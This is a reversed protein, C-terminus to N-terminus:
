DFGDAFITDDIFLFLDLYRGGGTYVSTSQQSTTDYVFAGDGSTWLINGNGLVHVGRAGPAAIANVQAGTAVNFRVLNGSTFGAVIVHDGGDRALQEAFNLTTSNHFTGVSAFDLDFRHIDDNPSSSSVLFGTGTAFIGFPSPAFSAVNISGDLVGAGTIKVIAPGPAGNATGSNTLLIHGGGVGMGRVNDLGGTVGGGIAGLYTGDLSWRSVRDGLQESIWIEFGVQMAHVPTGGQLPFYDPDAVSGDALNFLVLRNNTSDPMMLLTPSGAPAPSAAPASPSLAIMSTALLVSRFASTMMEASGEDPPPALMPM